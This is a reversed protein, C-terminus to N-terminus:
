YRMNDTRKPTGNVLEWYEVDEYAGRTSMAPSGYLVKNFKGIHVIRKMGSMLIKKATAIAKSKQDYYMDEGRTPGRVCWKKIM